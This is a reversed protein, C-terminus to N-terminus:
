TSLKFIVVLISNANFANGLSICGIILQLDAQM